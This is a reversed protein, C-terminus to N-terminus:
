YSGNGEITVGVGENFNLQFNEKPRNEVLIWRQIVKGPPIISSQFLHKEPFAKQFDARNKSRQYDKVAMASISGLAVVAGGVAVAGLVLATNYDSVKKELLCAEVWSTIRDGVLVDVNKSAGLKAGELELWESTNNKISLQYM